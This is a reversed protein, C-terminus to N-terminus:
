PLVVLENVVLSVGPASWAAGQAATREAWSAVSGSLTVISGRVHVGVRKAERDAQRELAARINNAIDGSDAGTKITIQNSVGTVGFLDRVAREAAQRQYDWSVEGTLTLWGGEVTTQVQDTPVLVNWELAQRAAQAVDADERRSLSPLRVQMEIALAKVGAVRQVAQEIAHKEAYHDLHGTLTVIGDKVIVGVETSVITPDWALEALINRQLALDTKMNFSRSISRVERYARWSSAINVHM